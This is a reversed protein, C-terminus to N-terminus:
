FSCFFSVFFPVTFDVLVGNIIAVPMYEKGCNKIIVPLCVDVSTVGAVCIPALKGFWKAFVPTFLLCSIERIINTLLAVTALEAALQEGLTASAYEAILVSSLSYYAFGSSAALCNPVSWKSLILGAIASLSLTGIITAVPVLLVKPKMGKLANKLTTDHGLSIGVQFMLCYLAILVTNEGLMEAGVIDTLGLIIGIIFFAIVIVSDSIKEWRRKWKEQIRKRKRVPAIGSNNESINNEPPAPAAMRKEGKFLWLYLGWGALLCGLIGAFGLLLAELGLSSLNGIIAPNGGISIGLLFLMLYITWSITRSVYSIFKIKRLAIGLVIGAMMVLIIKLM